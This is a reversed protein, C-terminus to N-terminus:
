IHANIPQRPSASLRRVTDLTLVASLYVVHFMCYCWAAANSSTEFMALQQELEDRTFRLQEPLSAVWAQPPTLPTRPAPHVRASRSRPRPGRSSSASRRPRRRTPSAPRSTSRSRRSASGTGSSARTRRRARLATWTNQRTRTLTRLAGRPAPRAHMGPAIVDLLELEALEFRTEDLPLRMRTDVDHRRLQSERRGLVLYGTLGLVYCLWMARRVCERELTRVGADPATPPPPPEQMLRAGMQLALGIRKPAQQYEGGQLSTMQALFDAMELLVLARVASADAPVRLRGQADFLAAHAARSFPQAALSPNSGRVSPRRSHRASLACIAYLLHAPVRNKALAVNFHPRHFM